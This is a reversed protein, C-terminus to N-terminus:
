WPRLCFRNASISFAIPLCAIATAKGSSPSASISSTSPFEQRRHPAVGGQPSYNAQSWGDKQGMNPSELRYEKLHNRGIVGSLSLALRVFSLDFIALFGSIYVDSCANDILSDNLFYVLVRVM